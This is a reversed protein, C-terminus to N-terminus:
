IEQVLAGFMPGQFGCVPHWSCGEHPCRGEARKEAQGAIVKTSALALTGGRCCGLSCFEAREGLAALKCHCVIRSQLGSAAALKM